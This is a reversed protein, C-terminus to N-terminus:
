YNIRETLQLRHQLRLRPVHLVLRDQGDSWRVERVRGRGGVRQLPRDPGPEYLGIVDAGPVKLNILRRFGEDCIEDAFEAGRQRLDAVTQELDRCM